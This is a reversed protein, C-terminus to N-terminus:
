RVYAKRKEELERSPILKAQEEPPAEAIRAQFSSFFTWYFSLTTIRLNCKALFTRLVWKDESVALFKKTMKRLWLSKQLLIESLVTVLIVGYGFHYYLQVQHYPVKQDGYFQEKIGFNRIRIFYISM